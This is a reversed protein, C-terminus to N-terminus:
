HHLKVRKSVVTNKCIRPFKQCKHFVAAPNPHSKGATSSGHGSEAEFCDVAVLRPTFTLGRFISGRGGSIAAGVSEAGFAAVRPEDATPISVAIDGSHYQFEPKAALAAGATLAFLLLTRPM